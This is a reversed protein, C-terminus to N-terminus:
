AATWMLRLSLDRKMPDGVKLEASAWQVVTSGLM